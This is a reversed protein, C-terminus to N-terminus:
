VHFIECLNSIELRRWDAETEAAEEYGNKLGEIEGVDPFCDLEKPLEELKHLVTEDDYFMTKTGKLTTTDM